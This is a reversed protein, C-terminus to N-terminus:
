QSLFPKDAWQPIIPLPICRKGLSRSREVSAERLARTLLGSVPPRPTTSMRKRALPPRSKIQRHTVREPAASGRFLYNPILEEQLICTHLESAQYQAGKKGGFTLSSSPM